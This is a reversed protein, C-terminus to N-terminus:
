SNEIAKKDKKLMIRLYLYVIIDVLLDFIIIITIFHYINLLYKKKYIEWDKPLSLIGNNVYPKEFSNLKWTFFYYATIIVILISIKILVRKFFIKARKKTVREVMWVRNAKSFFSEENLRLDILVFYYLVVGIIVILFFFFAIYINYQNDVGEFRIGPRILPFSLCLIYPLTLIELITFYKLVKKFVSKIKKNKKV